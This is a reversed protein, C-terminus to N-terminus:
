EDSGGYLKDNGVTSCSCAGGCACSTNIIRLDDGNGRWTTDSGSIIVPPPLTVTRKDGDEYQGTRMVLDPGNLGGSDDVYYIAVFRDSETEVGEGIWQGAEGAVKRMTDSKATWVPVSESLYTDYGYAIYGEDGFLWGNSM